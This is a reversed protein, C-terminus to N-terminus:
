GLLCVDQITRGTSAAVPIIAAPQQPRGPTWLFLRDRLDNLGVLLDGAVAVRRITQGGAEYRCAFSDGVVRAQASLSTDAFVLTHIGHASTLAISEVARRGGGHLREPYGDQLTPWYVVDGESTGAFLGIATARLATITDGAGVFIRDPAAAAADLRWRIARDDVSAYASGEFVHLGRVAQAGRTMSPFLPEAESPNRVSWSWLGLESHSALIRDGQIAAANFGGRVAPSDCVAVTLDPESRDLPLRYVGTSAGLLLVSAGDRDFAATVSRVQGASGSIPVRRALSSPSQPDYFLVEDGTSVVIWRTRALAPTAAFLAEYIQGRQRETFTRILEGLTVTPAAVALEDLRKLLDALHDVHERQARRIAGQLDVAAEHESRAIAADRAVRQSERLSASEFRVGPEGDLRLGTSFCVGQLGVALAEGATAAAPGDVLDSASRNAALTQLAARVSPEMRRALDAVTATRRSGLVEEAFGTLDSPEAIAAVRLMVTAQCAHGDSSGAEPVRLSLEVPTARVFVVEEVGDSSLVGGGSVVARDGATRHVLAIWQAPLEISRRLLGFLEGAAVRAAVAQPHAFFPQPDFRGATM